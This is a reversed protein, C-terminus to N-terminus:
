PESSSGVHVIELAALDISYELNAEELIRSSRTRSLIYIAEEPPNGSLTQMLGQAKTTRGGVARNEIEITDSARELL